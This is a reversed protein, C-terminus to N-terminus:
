AVRNKDWWECYKVPGMEVLARSYAEAATLHGLGPQTMSDEGPFLRWPELFIRREEEPSLKVSRYPKVDRASERLANSDARMTDVLNKVDQEFPNERM